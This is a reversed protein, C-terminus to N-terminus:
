IKDKTTECHLCIVIYLVEGNDCLICLINIIETLSLFIIPVTHNSKKGCSVQRLIKYNTKISTSVYCTKDIPYVVVCCYTIFYKM